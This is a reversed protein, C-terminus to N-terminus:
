INIFDLPTYKERKEILITIELSEQHVHHNLPIAFHTDETKNVLPHALRYLCARGVRRHRHFQALFSASFPRLVGRLAWCSLSIKCGVYMDVEPMLFFVLRKGRKKREELSWRHSM